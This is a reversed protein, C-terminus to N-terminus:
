LRHAPPAPEEPEGSSVGEIEASSAEEGGKGAIKKRLSFFMVSMVVAFIAFVALVPMLVLNQSRVDNLDDIASRLEDENANVDEELSAESAASALLLCFVIVACLTGTSIESM